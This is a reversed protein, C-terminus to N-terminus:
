AAWAWAWMTLQRYETPIPSQRDASVLACYDGDAWELLGENFTAINGKNIAHVTVEVRNDRLAPDIVADAPVGYEPASKVM